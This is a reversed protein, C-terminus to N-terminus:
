HLFKNLSLTSPGEEEHLMIKNRSNIWVIEFERGNLLQVPRNNGQDSNELEIERFAEMQAMTVDTSVSSLFWTVVESYPPITLSGQYTIYRYPYSKQLEFTSISFPALNATEGIKRVKSIGNIVPELVSTNPNEAKNDPFNFLVGIVSVGDPKSKAEVLSDYNQNHYLFHM